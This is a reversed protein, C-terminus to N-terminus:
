TVSAWNLWNVVASMIKEGLWGTRLLMVSATLWPPVVTSVLLSKLTLSGPKM